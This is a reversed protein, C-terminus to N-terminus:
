SAYGFGGDSKRIILPPVEEKESTWVVVAGESMEAIGRDLCEQVAGELFPNYFSEGRETLTIGM